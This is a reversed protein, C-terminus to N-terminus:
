DDFKVVYIPERSSFLHYAERFDADIINFINKQDKYLEMHLNYEVELGELKRIKESELFCWFALGDESVEKRLFTIQINKGKERIKLHNTLYVGIARDADISEDPSGLSLEEAIGEGVIALELDDMFVKLIIDLKGSEKNVEM